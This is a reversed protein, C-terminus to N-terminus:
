SSLDRRTVSALLQFLCFSEDLKLTSQFLKRQGNLFQHNRALCKSKNFCVQFKYSSLAFLVLTLIYQCIEIKYLGIKRKNLYFLKREKLSILSNRLKVQLPDDM